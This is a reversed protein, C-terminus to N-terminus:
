GKLFLYVVEVKKRRFTFKPLLPPNIISYIGTNISLFLNVFM